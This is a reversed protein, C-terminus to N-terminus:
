MDLANESKGGGGDAMKGVDDARGNAPRPERPSPRSLVAAAGPRSEAV